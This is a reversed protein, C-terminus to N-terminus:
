IYEINVVEYAYDNNGIEYYFDDGISCGIMAKALPSELSIKEKKIDSEDIGVIKFRLVKQTDLNEITVTCGFTVKGSQPIKLIDIIKANSIKEKIEVLKRELRDLSEKLQLYESNEGLDESSNRISEAVEKNLNNYDMELNNKLEVLDTHGEPTCYYVNSM